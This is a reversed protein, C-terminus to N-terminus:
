ANSRSVSVVPVSGTPVAEIDSLSRSMVLGQGNASKAIVAKTQELEKELESNRDQLAKITSDSKYKFNELDQEQRTM